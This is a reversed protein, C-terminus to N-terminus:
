TPSFAPNAARLKPFVVDFVIETVVLLHDAETLLAWYSVLDLVQNDPM